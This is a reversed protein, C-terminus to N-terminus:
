SITTDGTGTKDFKTHEDDEAVVRGVVSKDGDLEVKIVNCDPAIYSEVHTTMIIQRSARESFEKIFSLFNPRANESVFKGPEDLGCPGTVNLLTLMVFRLATTIVDVVGGGSSELPDGSRGNTELLLDCEIQNRRHLFNVLFQYDERNFTSRLAHTVLVEIEDKVRARGTTGVLELLKLSLDCEVVDQNAGDLLKKQEELLNKLSFRQGEITTIQRDLNDFRQKM